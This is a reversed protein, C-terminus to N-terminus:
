YNIGLQLMIAKWKLEYNVWALFVNEKTLMAIVEFVHMNIYKKITVQTKMKYIDEVIPKAKFVCM